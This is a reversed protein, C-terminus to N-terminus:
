RYSPLTRNVTANPYCYNTTWPEKGTPYQPNMYQLRLMRSAEEM